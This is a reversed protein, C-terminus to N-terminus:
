KQWGRRLAALIPRAMEETARAHPHWDNVLAERPVRIHVYHLDRLIADHLWDEDGPKESLDILVM